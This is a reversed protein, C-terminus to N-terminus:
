PTQDYLKDTQEVPTEDVIGQHEMKSKRYKAGIEKIVLWAPILSIGWLGFNLYVCGVEGM